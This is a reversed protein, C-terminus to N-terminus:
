RSAPYNWSLKREFMITENHQELKRELLRLLRRYGNHNVSPFLPRQCASVRAPLRRQVVRARQRAVVRSESVQVASREGRSQLASRFVRQSQVAFASIYTFINKIM